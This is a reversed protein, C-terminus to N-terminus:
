KEVERKEVTYGLARLWRKAIPTFARLPVMVLWPASRGGNNKETRHM